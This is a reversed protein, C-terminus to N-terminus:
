AANGGALYEELADLADNGEVERVWMKARHLEDELAANERVYAEIIREFHRVTEPDDAMRFTRQEASM